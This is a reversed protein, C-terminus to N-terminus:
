PSKIMSTVWFLGYYFQSPLTLAGLIVWLAMASAIGKYGRGQIANGAAETPPNTFAQAMASAMPLAMHHSRWLRGISLM